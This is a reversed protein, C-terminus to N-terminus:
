SDGSATIQSSGSLIIQRGGYLKLHSGGSLKLHRYGSLKLHRGGSLKIYPEQYWHAETTRKSHCHQRFTTLPSHTFGNDYRKHFFFGGACLHKCFQAQLAQLTSNAQYIKLHYKYKPFIFQKEKM